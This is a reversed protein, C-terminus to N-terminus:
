PMAEVCYVRHRMSRIVISNSLIESRVRHAVEPFIVGLPQQYLFSLRLAHVLPPLMEGREYRALRPADFGRVRMVVQKQSFGLRRRLERLRNPFYKKNEEMDKKKPNIVFSCYWSRRMPILSPFIAYNDLNHPYTAAAM